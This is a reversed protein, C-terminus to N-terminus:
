KNLDKIKKLLTKCFSESIKNFKIGLHKISQIMFPIIKKIEDKSQKNSTSLFAISKQINIKYGTVKNFENIWELLKKYVFLEYTSKCVLTEIYLIMVDAISVTKGRKKM